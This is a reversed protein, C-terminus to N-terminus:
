LLEFQINLVNTTDQTLHIKENNGKEEQLPDACCTTIPPVVTVRVEGAGNVRLVDAADEIVTSVDDLPHVQPLVLQQSSLLVTNPWFCLFM